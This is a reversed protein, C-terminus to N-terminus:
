RLSGRTRVGREYLYYIGRVEFKGTLSAEGQLAGESDLKAEVVEEIQVQCPDALPNIEPVQQQMM